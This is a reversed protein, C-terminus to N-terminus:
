IKDLASSIEQARFLAKNALAPLNVIVDDYDACRRDNLLRRLNEGIKKQATNHRNKFYM